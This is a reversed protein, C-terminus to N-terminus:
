AADAGRGAPERRESWTMLEGLDIVSLLAGLPESDPELPLGRRRIALTRNRGNLGTTRYIGGAYGPDAIRQTPQAEPPLPAGDRDALTLRGDALRTEDTGLLLVAARNYALVGGTSDFLLLGEPVSEFLARYRLEGARLLNELRSRDTVDHVISYLLSRGYMDLVGSYVEVERLRGSALRHAVRLHNRRERRATDLERALAQPPLVNLDSINMTELTDRPYGYFEAAAPNAAVIAGDIPDILLKVSRNKEFLNRYSTESAALLRQQRRMRLLLAVITALLLLMLLSGVVGSGRARRVGAEAGALADAESLGVLAILPLGDLRRWALIRRRADITSTGIFVGRSPADPGIFPRDPAVSHGLAQDLKASRAVYAGDPRLLTATDNDGLGIEAMRASLFEPSVSLVVVGDFRGDRLVKRSFQINWVNTVRGVVPASIFMEDRGPLLQARFHERDAVNVKPANPQNSFRLMGQADVVAIQLVAGRPFMADIVAAAADFDRQSAPASDRLYGLAFDIGGLTAGIQSAVANALRQVAVESEALSASRLRQSSAELFSWYLGILALTAVVIVGIALNFRMPTPRAPARPMAPRPAPRVPRPAADM